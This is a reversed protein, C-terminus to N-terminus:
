RSFCKKCDIMRSNPLFMCDVYYEGHPPENLQQGTMSVYRHLYDQKDMIIDNLATWDSPLTYGASFKDRLYIRMFSWHLKAPSFYEKKLKVVTEYRGGNDRFSLTDVTKSEYGVPTTNLFFQFFTSRLMAEDGEKEYFEVTFSAYLDIKKVSFNFHLLVDTETTDVSIGWISDKKYDEQQQSFCTGGVLLMMGMILFVKLNKM